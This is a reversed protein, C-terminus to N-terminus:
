GLDLAAFMQRLRHAYTHEAHARRSAAERVREAERYDRKARALWDLSQEFSRYGWYERGTEFYRGLAEREECLLLGGSACTEFIRCNVSNSGESLAFSALCAMAEGFCRAKTEHDLFRGSHARRISESVWRGPSPGYIAVEVGSAILRTVLANRYGYSTGAVLLTDGSRRAVPKHWSPNCAEPLYEIPLALMSRLKHVLDPDKAFLADYEGSVLHDRRINAPADGYWCVVLGGSRRRIAAVSEPEFTQTCMLTLDPKFEGAIRVARREDKLRIASSARRLVEDIGRRLASHTMSLSSGPDIRVEHGMERLSHAVNHSFSDSGDPGTVFVRM